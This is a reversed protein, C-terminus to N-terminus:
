RQQGAHGDMLGEKVLMECYIERDYLLSETSKSSWNRVLFEEFGSLVRDGSRMDILQDIWRVMKQCMDLREEVDPYTRSYLARAHEVDAQFEEPTKNRPFGDLNEM